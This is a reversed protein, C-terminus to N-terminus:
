GGLTRRVQRRRGVWWLVGGAIASGAGALALVAAPAGTVPLQDTPPQAPNVTHQWKCPEGRHKEEYLTDVTQPATEGAGEPQEALPDLTVDASEPDWGPAWGGDHGYGTPDHEPQGGLLSTLDPDVPMSEIESPPPVPPTVTPTAPPKQGCDLGEPSFLSVELTFPVSRSPDVTGSVLYTLQGEVGFSVLEDLDGTGSDSGCAYGDGSATCSWRADVLGTPIPAVLRWGTGALGTPSVVDVRYTLQDGPKPDDAPEVTVTLGTSQAGPQAAAAPWMPAAAAPSPAFVGVAGCLVAAGAVRLPWAGRNM